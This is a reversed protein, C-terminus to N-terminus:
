TLKFKIRCEIDEDFKIYVSDGSALFEQSKLGTNSSYSITIANYGTREVKLDLVRNEQKFRKGMKAIYIFSDGIIIFDAIGSSAIIM